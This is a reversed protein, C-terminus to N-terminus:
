YVYAHQPLKYFIGLFKIIICYKIELFYKSMIIEAWYFLSSMRMLAGICIQIWQFSLEDFSTFWRKVKFSPGFTLDSMM